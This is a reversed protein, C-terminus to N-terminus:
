MHLSTVASPLEKGTSGEEEKSLEMDIVLCDYPPPPIDFKVVSDYSPPLSDVIRLIDNQSNIHQVNRGNIPNGAEDIPGTWICVGMRHTIYGCIILSVVLMGVGLAFVIWRSDPNQGMERLHKELQIACLILVPVGVMGVLLDIIPRQNAMVRVPNINTRNNYSNTQVAITHQNRLVMNISYFM